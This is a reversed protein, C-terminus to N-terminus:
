GHHAKLSDALLAAQAGLHFVTGDNWIVRSAKAIKVTLDLQSAIMKTALEFPLKRQETLRQLQTTKSCAVVVLEDVYSEANTEFLLPIDVIMWGGSGATRLEVAKKTWAARIAPHLIAELQRRKSEDAFVVRRLEGRDVTGTEASAAEPFQSRIVSSIEKDHFLARAEADADFVKAELMVALAATATTKGTAIGGTLGLM